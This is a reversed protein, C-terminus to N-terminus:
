LVPSLPRLISEALKTMIPRQAFEERDIAHAQSITDTFIEGMDRNIKRNLILVSLEFNLRMSREDFNSSGITTWQDDIVMYKSHEIGKDYEFIKVGQRLLADYYSRGAKVLLPHESKGSVLLRVDVDRAAAVQLATQMTEGPVFYGSSIWLRKKAAGILSLDARLMPHDDEDPGGRLVQAFSKEPLEPEPVYSALPDERGTAFFWDEAFIQRFVEVVSGQIRLQVDSWDGLDPNRGLYERGFNMGGVFVTRGDIIQLKRHNRLNFSYRSRIPSVTHSWSFEGGAEILPRFYDRKLWYCGIEDLLLRVAVGRQVTAILLHLFERGVEDDRWIYSEVHVDRKAGEISERLAGYFAPAKRLIQLSSATALPLQTIRGLGSLLAQEDARLKQERALIEAEHATGKRASSLREKARFGQRQTRRRRKVRESGIALYLAAGVGPFLLMAWLWALTATPRKNLLLMHPICAVSALWITLLIWFWM